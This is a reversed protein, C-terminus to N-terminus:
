GAGEAATRCRPWPGDYGLRPAARRAGAGWGTPSGHASAAAGAEAARVVARATEPTARPGHIAALRLLTGAELVSAVRPDLGPDLAAYARRFADAAALAPRAGPRGIAAWVLHAAFNAADVAPEGLAADDLDVLGVTRGDWLVQGPHLDRHLPRWRWSAATPWARDLAELVRGAAAALEPRASALGDVRRALIAWEEDPGHRRDLAAESAHLRRAARAIRAALRRDGAALAPEVPRGEVADLLLLQAGPLCGIPEPLRVQPDGELARHLAVHAAHAREARRGAFAKAFLIRSGRAAPGDSSAAELRVLARRGPKHRVVEVTPAGLADDGLATAMLASARGADAVVALGPLAPDVVAPGIPRGTRRGAPRASRRTPHRRREHAALRAEAESLVADMREPWADELRRLPHIALRLLAAAEYLAARRATGPMRIAAEEEVGAALTEAAAREPPLAALTWARLHALFAGLDLAPDGVSLEDLDVLWLRGDSDAVLQDDYFDGHILAPPASTAELAAGIRAALRGARGPGDPQLRDLYAAADRLSRAVDGPPRAPAESGIASPSVAHLRALIEVISETWRAADPEGRRASLPAGGIAQFLVAGTAEVVGLSPAVPLGAAALREAVRHQRDGPHRRSLKAYVAPGDGPFAYRLVARREVNHRVMQVDPRGLAASAEGLVAGVDRRVRSPAAARLLGRLKRDLPAVQLIAGLDPLLASRGDPPEPFLRAARDRLRPLPDARWARAARDGAYLSATVAAVGGGAGSGALTLRYRVHCAAGPKYRLWEPRCGVIRVHGDGALLTRELREAMADGDLARPLAPLARDVPLRWDARGTM